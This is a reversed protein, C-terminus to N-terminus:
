VITERMKTKLKTPKMSAARTLTQIVCLSPKPVTRRQAMMTCQGLAECRVPREGYELHMQM